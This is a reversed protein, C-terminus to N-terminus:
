QKIRKLEKETLKSYFLTKSIEPDGEKICIIPMIIKGAEEVTCRSELVEVFLKKRVGLYQACLHDFLDFIGHSKRLGIFLLFRHLEMSFKRTKNKM